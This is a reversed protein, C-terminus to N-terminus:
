NLQVIVQQLLAPGHTFTLPQHSYSFPSSDVHHIFLRLRCLNGNYTFHVHFCSIFSVLVVTALDYIYIYIYLSLFPSYQVHIDPIMGSAMFELEFKSAFCLILPMENIEQGGNPMCLRIPWIKTQGIALSGKGQGTEM